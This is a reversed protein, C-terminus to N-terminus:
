FFTALQTRYGVVLAVAFAAALLFLLWEYAASGDLGHISIAYVPTISRPLVGDDTYHAVLDPWRGALDVLLTLGLGIRFLALSRPDLGFFTDRLRTWLESLARM